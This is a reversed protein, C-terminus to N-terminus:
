HPRKSDSKAACSLTALLSLFFFSAQVPEVKMTPLSPSLHPWSPHSIDLGKM